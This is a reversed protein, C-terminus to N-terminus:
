SGMGSGSRRGSRNRLWPEGRETFGCNYISRLHRLAADLLDMRENRVAGVAVIAICDLAATLDEYPYAEEGCALIQAREKASAVLGRLPSIREDEFHQFVM